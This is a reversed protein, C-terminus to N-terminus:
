DGLPSLPGSRRSLSAEFGSGALPTEGVGLFSVALDGSWPDSATPNLSASGRFPSRPVVNGTGADYDFTFRGPIAEGGGFVKREIELNPLQEILVAEFEEIRGGRAARTSATFEVERSAERHDAVLTAEPRIAPEPGADPGNCVQHFSRVSVGKIREAKVKTYGGEGRFSFSGVFVGRQVLAKRGKCDGQPESSQEPIGLPRWRMDMRGLGRFRAKIRSGSSRGRTKYEVLGPHRLQFVLVEVSGNPGFFVLVDTGHSGRLHFARYATGPYVTYGPDARSVTACLSALACFTLAALLVIRVPSTLMPASAKDNRFWM